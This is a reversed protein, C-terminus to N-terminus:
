RPPAGRREPDVVVVFLLPWKVLSIKHNVVIGPAVLSLLYDNLGRGSADFRGLALHTVALRDAIPRPVGFVAVATARARGPNANEGPLRTADIMGLGANRLKRRVEVLTGVFIETPVGVFDSCSEVEKPAGYGKLSRDSKVDLVNRILAYDEAGLAREELTDIVENYTPISLADIPPPAAASATKLPALRSLVEAVRESGLRRILDEIEDDGVKANAKQKLPRPFRTEFEIRVTKRLEKKGTEKGGVLHPEIAAVFENVRTVHDDSPHLPGLRAAEAVSMLSDALLRQVTGFAGSPTRWIARYHGSMRASKRCENGSTSQVLDVREGQRAVAVTFLATRTKGLLRELIRLVDDIPLGVVRETFEAFTKFGLHVWHRHWVGDLVVAYCEEVVKEQALLTVLALKWAEGAAKHTALEPADHIRSEVGVPATSSSMETEFAVPRQASAVVGNICAVNAM